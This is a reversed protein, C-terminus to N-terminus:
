SSGEGYNHMAIVVDFIDIDGDGDIDCNAVYKADGDETGYADALVVADFIDVDIDGDVDGPITVFVGHDVTLSNDLLDTEGSVPDISATITYNGLSLGGTNWRVTLGCVEGGSLQIQTVNFPTGDARLTITLNEVYHGQNEVSLTFIEDFGEAVITRSGTVVIIAVDHIMPEPLYAAEVWHSVDELVGYEDYLNVEVDYWGEEGNPLMTLDIEACEVADITWTVNDQDVVEGLPDILSAQATVNIPDGDTSVTLELQVADLFDDDDSDFFTFRSDTIQERSRIGRGYTEYLEHLLEDWSTDETWLPHAMSYTQGFIDNRANYVGEDDPLYIYLGHFNPHGPGHWEAICADDIADILNQAALQIVPDAIGQKLEIAFDYLDRCSAAGEISGIPEHSEAQTAAETIAYALRTMNAILLDAVSIAANVVDTRVRSLNFAVLTMIDGGMWSFQSYHEVIMSSLSTLNMGPSTVLDSLIHNYPWHTSVEESAIFVEAYDGVEYAVELASFQCAEFAIVDVELGTTNQAQALAWQIELPSLIDHNTWDPCVGDLWGHGIIMVFYRNAPYDQAAWTLFERLTTQDGMNVEGLSDIANEATPTLGQTLYFRKCDTWDGYSSAHGDIRDLQVVVNVDATSGVAAMQTFYGLQYAELDCDGCSYVMFTWETSRPRIAQTIPNTLVSCVLIFSAVAIQINRARAHFM